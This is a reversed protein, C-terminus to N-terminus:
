GHVNRANAVEQKIRLMDEKSIGQGVELGESEQMEHMAVSPPAVSTNVPQPGKDSSASPQLLGISSPPAGLSPSFPQVSLPNQGPALYSTGSMDVDMGTNVANLNLPVGPYETHGNLTAPTPPLSMGVTQGCTSYQQSLFPDDITSNPTNDVTRLQQLLIHLLDAGKRQVLERELRCSDTLLPRNRLTFSVKTERNDGEFLRGQWGQGGGEIVAGHIGNMDDMNMLMGSDNGTFTEDSPEGDSIRKRKQSTPQHTLVPRQPTAANM